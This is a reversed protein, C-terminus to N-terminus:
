LDEKGDIKDVLKLVMPKIIPILPIILDDYKNESQVAAKELVNFLVHVVKIAVDEAIDLGEKKLEEVIMKGVSMKEM